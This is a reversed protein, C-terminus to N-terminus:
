FVLRLSTKWECLLMVGGGGCAFWWVFSVGCSVAVVCFQWWVFSGGCLVAVVCFQWWLGVVWGGCVIGSVMGVGM